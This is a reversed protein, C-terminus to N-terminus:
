EAAQSDPATFPIWFAFDSGRGPTSRELWIKGGHREVFAKCIALGLGVGRVGAVARARNFKEFLRPQEERPIGRGRDRVHFEVGDERNKVLLTIPLGPRSFKAANELLNVLVREVEDSDVWLPKSRRPLRTIVPHQLTFPASRESAKKAVTGPDCLVRQSYLEHGAELRSLDLLNSVLVALRDAERDIGELFEKRTDEDWSVDTRLLSTTFGKIHHLPTRFEHSVISVLSDRFEEAAKQHSLDTVLGVVREEGSPLVVFTDTISIPIKKGGSQTLHASLIHVPKRSQFCELAPCRNKCISEGNDDTIEVFDYCSSGGPIVALTEGLMSRAAKNAWQLRREPDLVYVGGPIIDLLLQLWSQREADRKYLQEHTIALGIYRSLFEILRVEDPSMQKQERWSLSILAVIEGGSTKVPVVLASTCGAQYMKKRDLDTLRPDDPTCVQIPAGVTIVAQALPFDSLRVHTDRVVLRPSHNKVYSAAVTARDVPPDVLAVFCVDLDFVGALKDVLTGLLHQLDAHETVHSAIDLLISWEKDRQALQAPGSKEM